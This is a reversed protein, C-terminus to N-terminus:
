AIVCGRMEMGLEKLEEEAAEKENQQLKKRAEIPFWDKMFNM